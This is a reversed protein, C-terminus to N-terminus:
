SMIIRNITHELVFSRGTHLPQLYTFNGTRMGELNAEARDARGM